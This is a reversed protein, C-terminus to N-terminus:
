PKPTADLTTEVLGLSFRGMSADKCSKCRKNEGEGAKDECALRSAVAFAM